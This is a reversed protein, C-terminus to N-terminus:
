TSPYRSSRRREKQRWSDVFLIFNLPIRVYWPSLASSGELWMYSPSEFDKKRSLAISVIAWIDKLGLARCLPKVFAKEHRMDAVVGLAAMARADTVSPHTLLREANALIEDVSRTLAVALRRNSAILTAASIATEHLRKAYALEAESRLEPSFVPLVRAGDKRYGKTTAHTSCLFCHEVIVRRRSFISGPTAIFPYAVGAQEETFHNRALALYYGKPICLSAGGAELIRKLAAQSNLSWGADVLAWPVDDLLGEQAFYALAVDRKQQVSSIITESAVDNEMMEGLFVHAQDRSLPASWQTTTLSLADRIIGQSVDSLGMREAVDRSSSAQGPVVLLRHWDTNDVRISPPLWARRSGHLYRIEIDDNDRLVQAIQYLVEGDRAVFYLRRIGHHRAHKLVWATYALLLPSVVGRVIDGLSNDETASRPASLRLRRAFAALFSKGAPRPIRTGAMLTERPTLMGERFHNVVIGANAAMQVDARLNDGTHVLQSAELKEAELVYHFLQGHHKTLGLDCSVYLADEEKMVGCEILIPRLVASSLYMDSIFIIRNGAQRLNEIHHVISPIPYISERELDIESKMMEQRTAGTGNLVGLRNYIDEITVTRRPRAQRHAAKEARIRLKQFTAAFKQGTLETSGAIALCEGLDYFVDRPYAHMRTICTDFVDFSYAM